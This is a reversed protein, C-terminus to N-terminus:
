VGFSVVTPTVMVTVIVTVVVVVPVLVGANTRRNLGLTLLEERSFTSRSRGRLVRYMNGDKGRVDRLVVHM